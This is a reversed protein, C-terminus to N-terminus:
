DDDATAALTPEPTPTYTPEYFPDIFTNSFNTFFRQIEAGNLMRAMWPHGIELPVDFYKLKMGFDITFTLPEYADDDDPSLGFLANIDMVLTTNVTIRHIRNDDAGVYQVIVVHSDATSLLAPLLQQVFGVFTADDARGMEILASQIDVLSNTTIHDSVVLDFRFPYMLEGDIREDPMRRLIGRSRLDIDAPNLISSLSDTNILDGVNEVENVPPFDLLEFFMYGNFGGPIEILYLPLQEIPLSILTTHDEENPLETYFFGDVVTVPLTNTFTETIMETGTETQVEIQRDVEGYLDVTFSIPNTQGPRIAIAGGGNLQMRSISQTDLIAEVIYFGDTTMDLTFTQSFSTVSMTNEFASSIIDCDEESLQLCPKPIETPTPTPTASPEVPVETPTSTPLPTYTPFPTYTPLPTYTPFQTLSPLLTYTPPQTLTPLLTYTPLQTLTPLPTYTPFSTHTPLPVLTPMPTSNDSNCATMLVLVVLLIVLSRMPFRM